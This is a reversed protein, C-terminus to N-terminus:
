RGLAEIYGVVAQQEQSTIHTAISRMWMGQIDSYAEAGRLGEVYNKLQKDIYWGGLIRLNPAQMQPYGQAQQGHCHACTSQYRAAGDEDPTSGAAPLKVSPLAAFYASLSAIGEDSLEKALASMQQGSQDQDAYGRRGSKFNNLQRELYAADQGALAPAGLTQNGAGVDGHCASCRALLEASPAEAAQLNATTALFMLALTITTKM